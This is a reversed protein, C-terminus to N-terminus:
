LNAQGAVARIQLENCPALDTIQIFDVFLREQKDSGVTDTGKIYDHGVYALAAFSFSFPQNEHHNIADISKVGVKDCGIGPLPLTNVCSDNNQNLSNDSTSGFWKIM